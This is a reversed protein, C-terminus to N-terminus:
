EVDSAAWRRLGVFSDNQQYWRYSPLYSVVRWGLSGVVKAMPLPQRISLKLGRSWGQVEEEPFKPFWVTAATHDNIKAIATIQVLGRARGEDYVKHALFSNEVPTPYLVLLRDPERFWLDDRFVWFLNAPHGEKVLFRCFDAIALQFEPIENM